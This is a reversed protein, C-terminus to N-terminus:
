MEADASEDVQLLFLKLADMLGLREGSAMENTGSEVPMFLM